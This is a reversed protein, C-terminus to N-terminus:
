IEQNLCIRGFQVMVFIHLVTLLIHISLVAEPLSSSLCDLPGAGKLPEIKVPGQYGAAANNKLTLFM